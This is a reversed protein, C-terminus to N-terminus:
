VFHMQISRVKQLAQLRSNTEGVVSKLVPSVIVSKIPKAKKPPVVRLRQEYHPKLLTM